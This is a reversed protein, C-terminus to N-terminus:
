KKYLIGLTFCINAVILFTSPKIPNQMFEIAFITRSILSLAIFVIGVLVLFVTMKTM